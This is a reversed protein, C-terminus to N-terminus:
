MVRPQVPDTAQQEAERRRAERRLFGFVKLLGCTDVADLLDTESYGLTGALVLAETALGLNADRSIEDVLRRFGEPNENKLQRVSRLLEEVSALTPQAQDNMQM